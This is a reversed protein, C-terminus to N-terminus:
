RSQKRTVYGSNFGQQKLSRQLHPIKNEDNIPGVIVRHLNDSGAIVNVTELLVNAVRAQLSVAKQPESFAGLQLYWSREGASAQTSQSPSNTPLQVTSGSNPTVDEIDVLATGTADIGLKRAAVYSLDIVRNDHFPGRDNIKVIVSKGNGVHTVRVYSPIPLTKHAATMAYMNYVEGNATRKGHFKTGYWSALGREKYGQSDSITQYTKGLVTYRGANGARTRTVPAPVADPIRSVDVHRAPPGDSPERVFSSCSALLVVGCAMILKGCLNRGQTM